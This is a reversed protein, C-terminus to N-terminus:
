DGSLWRDSFVSPLLAIISDGSMSETIGYTVMLQKLVRVLDRDDGPQKNRAGKKIQSKDSDWYLKEFVDVIESNVFYSTQSVSERIQGPSHLSNSLLMKSKDGLKDYLFVPTRILHRTAIKYDTFPAPDYRHIKGFTQTEKQKQTVVQHFLILILWRWLSHNHLYPEVNENLATHISIACDYSTKFNTVEFSSTSEIEQAYIPNSMLSIDFEQRDLFTENFIQEGEKTLECLKNFKM